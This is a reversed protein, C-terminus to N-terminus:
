ISSQVDAATESGQDVWYDFSDHVSVEFSSDPAILDQLRPADASHPGVTVVTGPETTLAATLAHGVDASADGSAAQTQLGLLIQGNERVLAPVAGPLVTAVSVERDADEKLTVPATAASVIERLAVWDCEGPLGEFARSVLRQQAARAHKGHCAKYRKGSGCPCPQRPAVVPVDTRTM